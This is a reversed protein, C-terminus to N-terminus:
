NIQQGEDGVNTQMDLFVMNDPIHHNRISLQARCVVLNM